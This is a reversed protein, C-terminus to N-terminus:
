KAVLGGEECYIKIDGNEFDRDFRKKTKQEANDYMYQGIQRYNWKGDGVLYENGQHDVRRLKMREHTITINISNYVDKSFRVSDIRDYFKEGTKFDIRDPSDDYFTCVCAKTKCDSFRQVAEKVYQIPFRSENQLKRAYNLAKKHKQCTKDCNRRVQDVVKETPLPSLAVAITFIPITIVMALIGNKFVAIAAIAKVTM